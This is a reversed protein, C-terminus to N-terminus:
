FFIGKLKLFFFDRKYKIKLKWKKYCRIFVEEILISFEKEM